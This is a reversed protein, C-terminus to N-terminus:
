PLSHTRIDTSRDGGDGGPLRDHQVPQGPRAAPARRQPLRRRVDGLVRRADGEPARQRGRRTKRPSDFYYYEDYWDQVWEQVNGHMDHLGWPNPSLERGPRDQRGAPRPSAGAARLRAERPTLKEGCWFATTTGARCAYEWEAETPLRYVRGHVEEEPLLALRDCFREADDWTM